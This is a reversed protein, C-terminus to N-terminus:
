FAVRFVAIDEAGQSVLDTGFLNTMGAFTGCGALQSGAYSIATGNNDLATSGFYWVRSPSGSAQELRVIATDPNEIDSVSPTLTQDGIKMTDVFSITATLQTQNAAIGFTGDNSASGFCSSWLPTGDGAGYASVFADFGGASTLDAGGFNATGGFQGGVVIRAGDTALAYSTDESTGGYRRSWVHSGDSGRFRAVFVDRGGGLSVLNAGGFSATGRFGGSAIVDGDLAIVNCRRDFGGQAEEDGTSILPRSWIHAGTSVDYAVLVCDSGTLPTSTRTGGGFNISGSFMGALVVKGPDVIAVGLARSWTASAPDGFTHDWVYSGSAGSLKVIFGGHGTREGGGFNVAASNQGVVYVDGAPDVAVANVADDFSSGMGISWVHSGDPRYRAVWIDYQGATGASIPAGGLMTTGQFVGAIVLDGNPAMVVSNGFGCRDIGAGGLRAIWDRAPPEADTADQSDPLVFYGHVSCATLALLPALMCLFLVLRRCVSM